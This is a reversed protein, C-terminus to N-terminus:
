SAREKDDTSGSTSRETFCTKHSPEPCTRAHTAALKVLRPARSSFGAGTIRHVERTTWEYGHEPHQDFLKALDTNDDNPASRAARTTNSRRRPVLPLVNGSQEAVARLAALHQAQEATADTLLRTFTDAQEALDTRLRANGQEAKALASRDHEHRLQELRRETREHEIAKRDREANFEAQAALALHQETLDAHATRLTDLDTRTARLAETLNARETTAVELRTTLDAITARHEADAREVGAAQEAGHILLTAIVTHGADVAATLQRVRAVPNTRMWWTPSDVSDAWRKRLDTNYGEWAQQPDTVYHDISWRRAMYARIPFSRIREISFTAGTADVAGERTLQVHQARRTHLGWLWPSMLSLLGFAVSAATPTLGEGAFHWYNIGAVVGAILYSARRLRAATASAKIMLANHAHWGVYVAMSEIAGAIVVSLAIKGPTPWGDPAVQEYFFAVQGYVAAANVLLLPVYMLHKSFDTKGRPQRMFLYAALAGLIAATLGLVTSSIAPSNLWAWATDAWGSEAPVPTTDAPLSGNDPRAYTIEPM